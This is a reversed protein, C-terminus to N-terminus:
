DRKQYIDVASTAIAAYKQYSRDRQRDHPHSTQRFDTFEPGYDVVEPDRNGRPKGHNSSKQRHGIEHRDLIKRLRFSGPPPLLPTSWRPVKSCPNYAGSKGGRLFIFQCSNEM